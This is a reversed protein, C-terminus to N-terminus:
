KPLAVSPPNTERHGCHICVFQLVRKRFFLGKRENAVMPWEGYKPCALLLDEAKMKWKRGSSFPSAM